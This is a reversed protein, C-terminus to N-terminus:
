HLRDNKIMKKDNKGPNLGNRRLEDFPHPLVVLGSQDKIGDIVELFNKSIIEESIFLGIVEGRKISIESGM